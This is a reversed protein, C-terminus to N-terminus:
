HTSHKAKPPATIMRYTFEFGLYVVYIVVAKQFGPLPNRHLNTFLPHRRWADQGQFVMTRDMSRDVMLSHYQLLSLIVFHPGKMDIKVNVESRVGCFAREVCVVCM